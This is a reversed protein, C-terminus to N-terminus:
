IKFIILVTDHCLYLIYLEKENDALIALCSDLWIEPLSFIEQNESIRANKCLNEFGTAALEFAGRHRGRTLQLIFYQGCLKFIEIEGEFIRCIAGMLMSASKTMRWCMVLLCQAVDSSDQGIRKDVLKM